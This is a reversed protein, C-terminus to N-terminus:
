KEENKSISCSTLYQKLLPQLNLGGAQLKITRGYDWYELKRGPFLFMCTYIYIFHMCFCKVFAKCNVCFSDYPHNMTSPVKIM